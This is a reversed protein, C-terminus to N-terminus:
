SSYCYCHESCLPLLGSQHLLYHLAHHTIHLMVLYMHALVPHSTSLMLQLCCHHGLMHTEEMHWVSQRGYSVRLMPLGLRSHKSLNPMVLLMLSGPMSHTALQRMVYGQMGLQHIYLCSQCIMAQKKTVIGGKHILMAQTCLRICMIMHILMISQCCYYQDNPSKAVIATNHM